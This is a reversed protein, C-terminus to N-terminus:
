YLKGSSERAMHISDGLKPGSALASAQALQSPTLTLVHESATSSTPICHFLISRFYSICPSHPLPFKCCFYLLCAFVNSLVSSLLVSKLPCMHMLALKYNSLLSDVSAGQMIMLEEKRHERTPQKRPGRRGITTGCM